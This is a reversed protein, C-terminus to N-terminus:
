EISADGAGELSKILENYARVPESGPAGYAGASWLEALASSVDGRALALRARRQALAASRPRLWRYRDLEIWAADLFQDDNSAIASTALLFQPKIRWPALRLARSAGDFQDAANPSDAAAEEVMLSSTSLITIGLVMAAATVLATRGLASGTARPKVSIRQHAAAWGLLVAWPLAVGSVFFSFDLLNHLPIVAIAVALSPHDKWLRRILAVLGVGLALIGILGAPGLEALVEVPLSHAHAPRNGVELPNAQSSQAFSAVGVGSAPSTTWLWMGTRWNDFRLSVPELAAVDPRVVVVAVMAIVLGGAVVGMAVRRRIVLVPITAVLALGLGVPSRTAVLGVVALIAPAIWVVGRPTARVQVILLPLATALLVALHSPLPLSAFARRGAVREEAYARAPSAFEEIAPRIGELGTIVQWLGWVALGALGVALLAPFVRPPRSRSGLWAFSVVAALLGIEGVARSFDWGAAASVMLAGFVVAIVVLRDAFLGSARRWGWTCLGLVAAAIVVAM